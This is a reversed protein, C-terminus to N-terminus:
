FFVSLTKRSYVNWFLFICANWVGHADVFFCKIPIPRTQLEFLGVVDGASGQSKRSGCGLKVCGKREGGGFVSRIQEREALPVARRTCFFESQQPMYCRFRRAGMVMMMKV